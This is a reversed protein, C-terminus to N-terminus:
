EWQGAAWSTGCLASYPCRPCTTNLQGTAEFPRNPDLIEEIVKLMIPQVLRYVEEAPHKGAGVDVEIGGTIKNKGLLLYSPKIRDLAVGRAKSYLLMYMVLQFSGIADRWSNPDDSVIKGPNIRMRQDNSGTKYDLIVHQEGRKEIRDLRGAFRYGDSTVALSQELGVIEVPGAAIMPAQYHKLFEDLQRTIQQKVLFAPGILESGYQEAFLRNITLRLRGSDLDATTLARGESGQFLSTLIQHVMSGIEREGVDESVDEKESLHLVHAYYFKLPCTLYTDLATATFAFQRLHDIVNGSKAVPSPKTTALQVNYRVVQVVNDLDLSRRDKQQNWLLKELFRSKEHKGSETFFCHVERAGGLLTSFYYEMLRERDRHTEMGLAERLRQPLLVDHGRGGPLIDDTANLLFVTDFSLNRTELFGIVQLGKLPTGPFPVEEASVANRFFTGYAAVDSLLLPALMSNSLTGLLNFFTEAYPRFYPHRTATSHKHIYDLIDTLKVSFDGLSEFRFVKRITHDHISRLHDRLDAASVDIGSAALSRSVSEFLDNKGEIEELSVFMTSQGEALSTELSHFLVRSVDSRQGFLTNKTYPHLVFATYKSTSVLGNHTGAGLQLLASFFGYLPTRQLPYGLSINYQNAALLPLTQHVVPFLADSTPLVIVTRENITTGADQMSKIKQSVAFVQGHTDSSQYFHCIPTHEPVPVEETGIDIGITELRRGLGPGHHAVFTTNERRLISTFIRQELITYAYFGAFIINEESTFDLANVNEAVTRYNLARTSLGKEQVVSYFRTYYAPLAQFRSLPVQALGEDMSRKQVDAMVLEELEAYLKLGVGVFRDIYKFHEGGLRHEIHTHLDFLLAVADLKGLTTPYLGIKETILHDIFTDISFIRPPICGGGVKEALAKRVFHAPRKGPFVVSYRSFDRVNDPLQEVVAHVLNQSPSIIIQKSV